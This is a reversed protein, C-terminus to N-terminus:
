GLARLVRILVYVPIALTAVFVAVAGAVYAFDRWSARQRTQRAEFLEANKVHARHFLDFLDGILPIAGLTADLSLNLLMRAIVVPPLRHRVALGVTYLGFMSSALDGAGPALMGIIPDLMAKDFWRAIARVRATDRARAAPAPGAPNSRSQDLPQLGMSSSRM